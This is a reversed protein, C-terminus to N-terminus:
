TREIDVPDFVPLFAGLDQAAVREDLFSWLTDQEILEWLRPGTLNGNEYFPTQLAFPIKMTDDDAMLYADNKLYRELEFQSIKLSDGFIPRRDGELSTSIVLQHVEVQEWTKHTGLRSRYIAWHEALHQYVKRNQRYAKKLANELHSKYDRARPKLATMKLQFLFLHSDKFAALDIDTKDEKSEAKKIPEEVIVKFGREKFLDGLRFAAREVRKKEERDEPNGVLRQVLPYWANQLMLPRVFIAIHDEYQLLPTQALDIVEEPRELKHIFFALHARLVDEEVHPPLCECLRTLMNEFTCLYLPGLLERAGKEVLDMNVKLVKQPVTMESQEQHWAEGYRAQFYYTFFSLIHSLLSSDLETGHWSFESEIGYHDLYEQVAIEQALIQRYAYRDVEDRGRSLFLEERIRREVMMMGSFTYYTKVFKYKLLTKAERQLGTENVLLTVIRGDATQMLKCSHDYANIDKLTALQSFYGELKLLRSLSALQSPEQAIHYLRALMRVQKQETDEADYKWKKNQFVQGTLQGLGATSQQLFNFDDPSQEYFDEFLVALLFLFDFAYHEELTTTIQRQRQRIRNQLRSLIETMEKKTPM